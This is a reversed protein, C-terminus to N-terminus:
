FGGFMSKLTDWAAKGGSKNNQVSPTKEGGQHYKSTTQARASTMVESVNAIMLEKLRVTCKLANLTRVDDPATVETIIMNEYTHLRTEVTIPLREKQLRVLAQYAEISRGAGSGFKGDILSTVFTQVAIDVVMNGSNILKGSQSDTMMVEISLESPMMIVHDSYVAGTQVPFETPRVSSLHETRIIGDFYLGGIPWKPTHFVFDKLGTIGTALDLLVSTGSLVAVQKSIDLWNPKEKGTIIPVFNAIGAISLGIGM